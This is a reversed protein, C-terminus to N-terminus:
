GRMKTLLMLLGETSSLALLSGVLSLMAAFTTALLICRRFFKAFFMFVSLEDVLSPVLWTELRLEMASM